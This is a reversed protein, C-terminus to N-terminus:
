RFAPYKEKFFLRIPISLVGLIFYTAIGGLRIPTLYQSYIEGRGGPLPIIQFLNNILGFFLADLLPFFVLMFIAILNTTSEELSYDLYYCRGATIFLQFIIVPVLALALSVCAITGCIEIEFYLFLMGAIAFVVALMIVVKNMKKWINQIKEIKKASKQSAFDYNSLM